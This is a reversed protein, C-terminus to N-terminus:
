RAASRPAASPRRRHRHSGGRQPPQRSRVHEGRRPDEVAPRVSGQVVLAVLHDCLEGSNPAGVRLASRRTGSGTGQRLLRAAAGRHPGDSFTTNRASPAHGGPIVWGGSLAYHQTTRGTFSATFSRSGGFGIVVLYVNNPNFSSVHIFVDTVVFALKEPVTGFPASFQRDYYFAHGGSNDNPVQFTQLNALANVDAAFEAKKAPKGAADAAGPALLVALTILAILASLSRVFRIM